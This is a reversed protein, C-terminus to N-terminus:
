IIRSRVEPSKQLGGGASFCPKTRNCGFDCSLVVIRFFLRDDRNKM